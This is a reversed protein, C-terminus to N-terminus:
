QARMTPTAIRPFTPPLPKAARSPPIFHRSAVARPMRIFVRPRISSTTRLMPRSMLTMEGASNEMITTMANTVVKM